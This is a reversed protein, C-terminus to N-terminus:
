SSGERLQYCKARRVLVERLICADGEPAKPVVFIGVKCALSDLLRKVRLHHEPAIRLQREISRAIEDKPSVHDNIQKANFRAVISTWTAASTLEIRLREGTKGRSGIASVAIRAAVM